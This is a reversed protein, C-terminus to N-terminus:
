QEIIRHPYFSSYVSLQKTCQFWFFLWYHYIFRLRLGHKIHRGNSYLTYKYAGLFASFSSSVVLFICFLLSVICVFYANQTLHLFKTWVKHRWSSGIWIAYTRFVKQYQKQNNYMCILNKKNAQQENTDSCIFSFIKICKARPQYM